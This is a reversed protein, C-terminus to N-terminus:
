ISKIQGWSSLFDFNRYVQTFKVPELIIRKVELDFRTEVYGSLPFDKRLPYGEFGYDTLIRRLDKNGEFVLGYMDWIERELWSISQFISSTSSLIEKDVLSLHINLNTLQFNNHVYYVLRFRYKSAYYDVAFLDLLTHFLNFYKLWNLILVLNFKDITLFTTIHNQNRKKLSTEGLVKGMQSFLYGLDRTYLEKIRSFNKKFFNFKADLKM